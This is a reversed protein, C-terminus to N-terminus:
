FYCPKVTAVHFYIRESMPLFYNKLQSVKDRFPESLVEQSKLFELYKYEIKNYNTKLYQM